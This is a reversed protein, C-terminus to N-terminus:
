SQAHSATRAAARRACRDRAADEEPTMGSSTSCFRAAAGPASAAAPPPRGTAENGERRTGRRVGEGRWPPAVAPVATSGDALVFAAVACGAVVTSRLLHRSRSLLMAIEMPAFFPDPGTPARRRWAQRSSDWDVATAEVM